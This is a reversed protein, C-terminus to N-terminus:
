EKFRKEWEKKEWHRGMIVTWVSWAVLSIFSIWFFYRYIYYILISKLYSINPILNNKFHHALLFFVLSFLPIISNALLQLLKMLPDSRLRHKGGKTYHKLDPIDQEIFVEIYTGLRKIANFVRIEDLWLYLLIFSSTMYLISYQWKFGVSIVGIFVLFMFYLDRGEREELKQMSSRIQRYEELKADFQRKNLEMM